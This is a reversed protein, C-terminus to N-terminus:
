KATSKTSTQEYTRAGPVNRDSHTGRPKALAMVIRGM